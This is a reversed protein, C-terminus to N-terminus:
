ITRELNNNKKNGFNKPVFQNRLFLIKGFVPNCVNKIRHIEFVLQYKSCDTTWKGTIKNSKKIKSNFYKVLHVM